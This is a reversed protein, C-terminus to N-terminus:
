MGWFFLFLRDRAAEEGWSIAERCVEIAKEKGGECEGKFLRNAYDNLMLPLNIRADKNGLDVAERCLQVAVSINEQYGSKGQYYWVALNKLTPSHGVKVLFSIEESFDKRENSKRGCMMYNQYTQLLLEEPIANYSRRLIRTLRPNATRTLFLHRPREGVVLGDSIAFLGADYVYDLVIEKESNINAVASRHYVDVLFRALVSDFKERLVEELGPYDKYIAREEETLTAPHTPTVPSGHEDGFRATWGRYEGTQIIKNAIAQLTLKPAFVNFVDNALLIVAQNTQLFTTLPEELAVVVSPKEHTKAYEKVSAIFNVADPSEPNFAAWQNAFDEDEIAKAVMTDIALIFAVYPKHEQPLSTIGYFDSLMDRKGCFKHRTRTISYILAIQQEPTTELAGYKGGLTASIEKTFGKFARYDGLYDAKNRETELTDIWAMCVMGVPKALAKHDYEFVPTNDAFM